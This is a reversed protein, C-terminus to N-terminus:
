GAPQLCFRILRCLEDELAPSGFLESREEYAARIVGIVARTLVFLAASREAAAETLRDDGIQPLLAAIDQVPAAHEAGFGHAIHAGMVVRRVEPRRGHLAILARVVAREPESDGAAFATRLVTGIAQRDEDLMRRAMAVLIAERNPFYDYLSGISVGAREAIRNTTLGTAGGEEIIRASAEFIAEVTAQARQQRPSKRSKVVDDNRRAM